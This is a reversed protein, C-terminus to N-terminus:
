PTENQLYPRMDWLLIIGDYSGSALITGDPSFAVSEVDSKHGSLEVILERTEVDWIQIKHEPWTGGIALRTGDPSFELSEVKVTDLTVVSQWTQTCWLIVTKRTSTALWTGQPSFKVRNIVDAHKLTAINRGTSTEWVKATTDISNDGSYFYKITGDADSRFTYFREPNLTSGDEDEQYEWNRAGGSVLLSGDQSFALDSIEGTHGELTCVPRQTEVNWLTVREDWGGTALLRSDPSVAASIIPTEATFSTLTKENWLRVTDGETNLFSIVLYCGESSRVLARGRFISIWEGHGTVKELIRTKEYTEIEWLTLTNAKNLGALHKGHRSFTVIWGRDDQSHNALVESANKDKWEEEHADSNESSAEKIAKPIKTGDNVNLIIVVGDSLVTTLYRGDESFRISRVRKEHTVCWINQQTELDWLTIRGDWDVLAIRSCDPSFAIANLIGAGEVGILSVFDGTHANYIWAGIRSAVAILHRDPSMAVDSSGGRGFRAVANAPLCITNEIPYNPTRGKLPQNYVKM